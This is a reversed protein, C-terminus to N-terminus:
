EDFGCRKRRTADGQCPLGGASEVVDRERISSVYSDLSGCSAGCSSWSGWDGWVCSVPCPGEYCSQEELFNNDCDLGGGTAQVEAYRRRVQTGNGCSTTCPEWSSWDSPVCDVPCARLNCSMEESADGSCDAGGEVAPIKVGRTRAKQGGSCSVTCAGWDAWDSWECDRSCRQTNCEGVEVGDELSCAHGQAKAELIVPKERQRVGGDCSATCDSWSTWDGW